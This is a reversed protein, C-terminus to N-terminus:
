GLRPSWTISSGFRRDMRLLLREVIARERRMAADRCDGATSCLFETLAGRVVRAEPVSLPITTQM